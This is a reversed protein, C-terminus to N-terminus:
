FGIKRLLFLSNEILWIITSNKKSLSFGFSFPTKFLGNTELSSDFSKNMVMVHDNIIKPVSIKTKPSTYFHNKISSSFGGEGMSYIMFFYIFSSPLLLSYNEIKRNVIPINKRITRKHFNKLFKDKRWTKDFIIHFKKNLLIANNDDEIYFKNIVLFEDLIGVSEYVLDVGEVLLESLLILNHKDNNKFWQNRIEQIKTTFTNGIIKGTITYVIDFTYILSYLEGITQRVNLEKGQRGTFLLLKNVLLDFLIFAHLLKVDETSFIKLPNKPCVDDKGWLLRLNATKKPYLYYINRFDEDFFSLYRHTLIFDAKKSLGWISRVPKVISNHKYVMIIDLDSIGPCWQGGMLYVGVVTDNNKAEDIVMNCCQWYDKITLQQPLNYTKYTNEPMAKIKM